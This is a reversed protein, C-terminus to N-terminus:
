SLRREVAKNYPIPPSIEVAKRYVTTKQNRVTKSLCFTFLKGARCRNKIKKANGEQCVPFVTLFFLTTKPQNATQPSSM